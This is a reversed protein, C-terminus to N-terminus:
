HGHPTIKYVIVRQTPKTIPPRERNRTHSSYDLEAFVIELGDRDRIKNDPGIVAGCKQLETEVTDPGPIPGHLNGDGGRVYNWPIRDELRLGFPLAAAIADRNEITPVELKKSCGVVTTALFCHVIIGLSRCRHM